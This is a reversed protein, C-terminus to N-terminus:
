DLGQLGFVASKEVRYWVCISTFGVKWLPMYSQLEYLYAREAGAGVELKLTKRSFAGLQWSRFTHLSETYGWTDIM